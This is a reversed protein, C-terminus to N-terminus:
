KEGAELYSMVEVAVVRRMREGRSEAAGFVPPGWWIASQLSVANAGSAVAAYSMKQARMPAAAVAALIEADMAALSRGRDLGGGLATGATEYLLECTCTVLPLAGENAVEVKGWRLRFCDVAVPVSVLENEEVTTGPRVAGRIAVTRAPNLAALRGRIVEYFTDKANQM